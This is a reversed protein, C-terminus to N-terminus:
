FTDASASFFRGYVIITTYILAGGGMAMFAALHHLIGAHALTLPFALGTVVFLSTLFHGFDLAGSSYDTSFDDVGSCRSCTANPAPAMVFIAAVLLPMWNGFLACSLIVLLFGIALVFSLLIIGQQASFRFLQKM